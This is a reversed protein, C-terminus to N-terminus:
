SQKQCAVSTLHGPKGSYYELSGNTLKLINGIREGVPISIILRHGDVRYGYKKGEPFRSSAYWGDASFTKDDALELAPDRIRTLCSWKGIIAPKNEALPRGPFMASDGCGSIVSILLSGIGMAFMTKM